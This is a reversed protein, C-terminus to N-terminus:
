APRVPVAGSTGSAETRERWAAYRILLHTAATQVLRRATASWAADVAADKEERRVVQFIAALAENDARDIAGVELLLRRRSRFSAALPRGAAESVGFVRRVIADTLVDLASCAENAAVDWVGARAMADSQHLHYLLTKSRVPDTEDFRKLLSMLKFSGHEKDIDTKKEQVTTTENSM